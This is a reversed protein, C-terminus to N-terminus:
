TELIRDVCKNWEDAGCTCDGTRQLSVGDIGHDPHACLRCCYWSDECHHHPRKSEALLNLINALEVLDGSTKEQADKVGCHELINRALQELTM